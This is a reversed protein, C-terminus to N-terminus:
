ENEEWEFLYKLFYDSRLAVGYPKKIPQQTLGVNFSYLFYSRCGAHSQLKVNAQVAQRRFRPLYSNGQHPGGGFAGNWGSSNTFCRRLTGLVRSKVDLEAAVDAVSKFVRATLRMLM